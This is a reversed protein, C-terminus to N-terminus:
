DRFRVCPLTPPLFGPLNAIFQLPNTALTTQRNRVGSQRINFEDDGDNHHARGSVVETLPDAHHNRCCSPSKRCSSLHCGLRHNASPLSVSKPKSNIKLRLHCSPSRQTPYLLWSLNKPRIKANVRSRASEVAM